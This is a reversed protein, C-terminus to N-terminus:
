QKPIKHREKSWLDVKIHGEQTDLYIINPEDSLKVDCTFAGADQHGFWIGDISLDVYDVISLAGDRRCVIDMPRTKSVFLKSEIPKPSDGKQCLARFDGVIDTKPITSKHPKGDKYSVFHIVDLHQSVAYGVDDDRFGFEITDETCRTITHAINATIQGNPYGSPLYLIHYLQKPEATDRYLTITRHDDLTVSLLKKISTESLAKSETLIVSRSISGPEISSTTKRDFMMWRDRVVAHSWVPLLLQMKYYRQATYGHSKYETIIQRKERDIRYPVTNSYRAIETYLPAPLFMGDRYLYIAYHGESQKVAIDKHKDLDFHDYLLLDKAQAM